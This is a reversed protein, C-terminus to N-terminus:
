LEDAYKGFVANFKPHKLVAEKSSMAFDMRMQSMTISAQESHFNYYKSCYTKDAGLWMQYVNTDIQSQKWKPNWSEPKMKKVFELITEKM